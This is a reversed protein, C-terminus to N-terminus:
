SEFPVRRFFEVCAELCLLQERRIQVATLRAKGQLELLDVSAAGFGLEEVPIHVSPRATRQTGCASSQQAPMCQQALLLMRQQARVLM